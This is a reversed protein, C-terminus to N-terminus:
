LFCSVSLWFCGLKITLTLLKLVIHLIFTIVFITFFLIILNTIGFFQKSIREAKVYAIRWKLIQVNSTRIRWQIPLIISTELVIFHAFSWPQLNFFINISFLFLLFQILHSPVLLVHHLLLGSHMVLIQHRMQFMLLMLQTLHCVLNNRWNIM